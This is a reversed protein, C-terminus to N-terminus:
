HCHISPAEIMKVNLTRSNVRFTLTTYGVYSFKLQNKEHPMTISYHGTSDTFVHQKTGAVVVVCQSLPKDNEDLVIGSVTISDKSDYDKKNLLSDTKDNTWDRVEGRRRIEFSKLPLAVFSEYDEESLNFFVMRIENDVYLYHNKQEKVKIKVQENYPSLQKRVSDAPIQRFGNRYKREWSFVDQFIAIGRSSSYLFCRNEDYGCFKKMDRKPPLLIHYHAPLHEFKDMRGKLPSVYDYVSYDKMAGMIEYMENNWYSVYPMDKYSRCGVLGLLIASVFLLMRLFGLPSTKSEQNHNPTM